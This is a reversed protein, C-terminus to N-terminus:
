QRVMGGGFVRKVKFIDRLQEPTKLRLAPLEHAYFVPTTDGPDPKWTDDLAFWILAGLVKSDILVAITRDDIIQDVTTRDDGSDGSDGTKKPSSLGSSSDQTRAFIGKDPPPEPRYAM